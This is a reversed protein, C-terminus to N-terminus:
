DGCYYKCRTLLHCQCCIFCYRERYGTGQWMNAQGGQDMITAPHYNNMGVDLEAQLMEQRLLLRANEGRIDALSDRMESITKQLFAPCYYSVVLPCTTVRSYSELPVVAM